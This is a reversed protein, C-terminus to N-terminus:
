AAPTPASENVTAEAQVSKLTGDDDMHKTGYRRAVGFGAEAFDAAQGDGPMLRSVQRVIAVAELIRRTESKTLECLEDGEKLRLSPM